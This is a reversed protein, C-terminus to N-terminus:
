KKFNVKEPIYDKLGSDLIKKKTPQNGIGSMILPRLTSIPIESGVYDAMFHKLVKIRSGEVYFIVDSDAIAADHVLHIDDLSIGEFDVDYAITLDKESFITIM